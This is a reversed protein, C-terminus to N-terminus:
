SVITWHNGGGYWASSITDPIKFYCDNYFLKSFILRDISKKKREHKIYCCKFYVLIHITNYTHVVYCYSLLVLLLVCLLTFLPVNSKFSSLCMKDQRSNLNLFFSFYNNACSMLESSKLYFYTKVHLRIKRVIHKMWETKQYRVLSRM